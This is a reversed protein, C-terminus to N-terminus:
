NIIAKIELHQNLYPHVDLFFSSPFHRYGYLLVLKDIIVVEAKIRYTSVVAVAQWIPLSNDALSSAVGDATSGSFVQRPDGSPPFVQWGEEPLNIALALNPAPLNGGSSLTSAALVMQLPSVRFESQDDVINPLIDQPLAEDPEIQALVPVSFFGLDELLKQITQEGLQEM